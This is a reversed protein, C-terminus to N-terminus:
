SGLKVAVHPYLRDSAESYAQALADLETQTLSSGFAAEGKLKKYGALLKKGIQSLSFHADYISEIYLAVNERAFRAAVPTGREIQDIAAGIMLWGRSALGAYSRYLGAISFAPGTLAEGRGGHFLAPLALKAAIPLVAAIQPRIIGSRGPALGHALLPWAAKTARTELTAEGQVQALQRAVLVLDERQLRLGVASPKKGKGCGGAALAAALALALAAPRASRATSM